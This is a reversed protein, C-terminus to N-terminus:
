VEIIQTVIAGDNIECVAYSAGIQGRPETISGPNLLTIGNKIEEHAIHSHGFFAAHCGEKKAHSALTDLESKVGHRHGHTILIRAGALEVVQERPKTSLFDCNGPVAYYNLHPHLEQVQEIDRINDGLFIVVRADQSNGVIQAMKDVKGHSDSFVLIKM